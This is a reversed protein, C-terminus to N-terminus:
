RSRHMFKLGHAVLAIGAGAILGFGLDAYTVYAESDNLTVSGLADSPTAAEYTDIGELAGVVALCGLTIEATGILSNRKEFDKDETISEQSTNQNMM